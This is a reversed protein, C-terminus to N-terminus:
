LLALIGYYVTDAIETAPLAILCGLRIALRIVSDVLHADADQLAKLEKCM